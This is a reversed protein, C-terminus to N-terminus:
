KKMGFMNMLRDVTPDSGPPSAKGKLFEEGQSSALEAVQIAVEAKEWCRPCLMAVGKRIRGKEMEGLFAGCKRCNFAKAM